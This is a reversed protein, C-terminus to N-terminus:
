YQDSRRSVRNATKLYDEPSDLIYKQISDKDYDGLVVPTEGILEFAELLERSKQPAAEPGWQLVAEVICSQSRSEQDNWVLLETVGDGLLTIALGIAQDPHCVAHSFFDSKVSEPIQSLAQVLNTEDSFATVISDIDPLNEGSRLREPRRRSTLNGIIQDPQAFQCDEVIGKFRKDEIITAIEKLREPDKRALRQMEPGFTEDALSSITQSDQIAEALLLKDSGWALRLGECVEGVQDTDLRTILEPIATTVSEVYCEPDTSNDINDPELASKLSRSLTDSDPGSRSSALSHDLEATYQSVTNHLAAQRQHIYKSIEGIVEEVRAPNDWSRSIEPERAAREVRKIEHSSATLMKVAVDHSGNAWLDVVVADLTDKPSTDSARQRYLRARLRSEPKVSRRQRLERFEDDLENQFIDPRAKALDSIDASPSDKNDFYYKPHLQLKSIAAKIALTQLEPDRRNVEPSQGLVILDEYGLKTIQDRRDEDTLAQCFELPPEDAEIKHDVVLELLNLKDSLELNITHAYDSDPDKYLVLGSNDKAAGLLEGTLDNTVAQQVFSDCRGQYNWDIILGAMLYSDARETDGAERASKANSISSNTAGAWTDKKILSEDSQHTIAQRHADDMLETALQLQLQFRENTDSTEPQSGPLGRQDYNESTGLGAFRELIDSDPGLNDLDGSTEPSETAVRPTKEYSM